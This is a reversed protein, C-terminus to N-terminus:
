WQDVSIGGGTITNNHDSTVTDVAVFLQTAMHTLTRLSVCEWGPVITWKYLLNLIFSIDSLAQWLEILAQAALCFSVICM